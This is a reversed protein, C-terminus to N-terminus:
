SRLPVLNQIVLAAKASVKTTYALVPSPDHPIVVKRISRSMGPKAIPCFISLIPMRPEGVDSSTNM